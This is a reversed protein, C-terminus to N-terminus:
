LFVSPRCWAKNFRSDVAWCSCEPHHRCTGNWSMHRPASVQLRQYLVKSGRLENWCTLSSWSVYSLVAKM